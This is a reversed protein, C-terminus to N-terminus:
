AQDTSESAHKSKRLAVLGSEDRTDAVRRQSGLRSAGPEVHERKIAVDRERQLVLAISGQAVTAGKSIRHWQQGKQRHTATKGRSSILTREAATAVRRHAAHLWGVPGGRLLLCSCVYHSTASTDPNAQNSITTSAAALDATCNLRPRREQSSPCSRQRQVPATPHTPHTPALLRAGPSMHATLSHLSLPLTMDRRKCRASERTAHAASTEFCGM